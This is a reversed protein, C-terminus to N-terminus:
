HHNDEIRVSKLFAEMAGSQAAVTGKAGQMKFFWTDGHFGLIGALISQSPGELTVLTGAHYSIIFPKSVRELGAADVPSSEIQGLWRNVNGLMGGVDGPFTTVTIEASGIGDSIRFNAKRISQPPFEEWGEPVTYTFNPAEAAAETMGPLVQMNASKSSDPQPVPAGPFEVSRDEKPIMYTTPKQNDCGVFALVLFALTPIKRIM